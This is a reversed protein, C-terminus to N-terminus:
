GGAEGASAATPWALVEVLEPVTAIEATATLAPTPGAAATWGDVRWGGREWVLEVRVTRYLQRPAQGNPVGILLLSWVDVVADGDGAGVVRATLPIEHFVVSAPTLGQEALDGLLERLQNSSEVALVTGFRESALTEIMDVRSIFGARAIAASTRVASVAAAQAGAADDRWGVPVQNITGTPGVPAAAAATDGPTVTADPPSSGRDGTCARLGVLVVAFVAIGGVVITRRM